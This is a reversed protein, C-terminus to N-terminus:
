SNILKHKTSRNQDFNKISVLMAGVGEVKLKKFGKLNSCVDNTFEGM